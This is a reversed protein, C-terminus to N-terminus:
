EDLELQPKGWNSTPTLLMIFGSVCKMEEEVKLGHASGEENNEYRDEWIRAPRVSVLGVCAWDKGILGTVQAVQVLVLESTEGVVLGDVDCGGGRADGKGGPALM